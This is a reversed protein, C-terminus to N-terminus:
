PQRGHGALAKIRRDSTTIRETMAAIQELLDDCEIRAIEPLDNDLDGVINAIRPLHRIGQPVVHGLEYLFARLMNM